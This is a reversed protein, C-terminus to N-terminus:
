GHCRKWSLHAKVTVKGDLKDVSIAAFREPQGDNIAACELKITLNRNSTCSSYVPVDVDMTADDKTVYHGSLPGGFKKVVAASLPSGRFYYTASQLAYTGGDLHVDGSFSFGAISFTLGHPYSLAIDLQCSSRAPLGQVKDAPGVAAALRSFRLVFSSGDKKIERLLEAGSHLEEEDVLYEERWWCVKDYEKGTRGQANSLM